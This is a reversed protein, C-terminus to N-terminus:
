DEEECVPFLPPNEAIIASIGPENSGSPGSIPDHELDAPFFENLVNEWKFTQFTGIGEGSFCGGTYREQYIEKLGDSGDGIFRTKARWCNYYAYLSIDVKSLPSPEGARLQQAGGHILYSLLISELGYPGSLSEDCNDGSKPDDCLEHSVESHRAEHLLIGMRDFPSQIRDKAQWFFNTLNLHLDRRRFSGVTSTGDANPKKEKYGISQFRNMVYNYLNRNINADVGRDFSSPNLDCTTMNGTLAPGLICDSLIGPIPIQQIMLVDPPTAMPTGVFAQLGELFKKRLASSMGSATHDFKPSVQDYLANYCGDGKEDEDFTTHLAQTENDSIFGPTPVYYDCAGNLESYYDRWPIENDDCGASLILIAALAWLQKM